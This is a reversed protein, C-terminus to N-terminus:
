VDNVGGGYRNLFNFLLLVSALVILLMLLGMASAEPWNFATLMRNDVEIAITRQTSSGLISPAAYAGVGWAWTIVTAVAIGPLAGPVVVEIVSRPRSAGLDRAAEVTEWNLTSIVSYISLIAYPLCIYVQGIVVGLFNNMLPVPQAVLGSGVLVNNILGEPTLLLVWAYLKAVITTLLLLVTAFLLALRKIGSSRWIAYAYVFGVTVSIITSVVALKLTFVFIGHIYSSTLVNLYSSIAWTGAAYSGSGTPQYLSIRTLYLLPIVFFVLEFIATPILLLKARNSGQQLYRGIRNFVSETTVSM